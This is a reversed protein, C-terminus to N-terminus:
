NRQLHPWTPPTHGLGAGPLQTVLQNGFAGAGRNVGTDVRGRHKSPWRPKSSSYEYAYLARFGAPISHTVAEMMRMVVVRM